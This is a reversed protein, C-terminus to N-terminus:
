LRMAIIDDQTLQGGFLRLVLLADTPTVTGDGTLDAAQPVVLDDRTLQGGFVRLIYLADTPDVSGDGNVDGWLITQTSEVAVTVTRSLTVGRATVEITLAHDGAATAADVVLLGQPTLTIGAPLPNPATVVFTYPGTGEVYYALDFTEGEGHPIPGFTAPIGDVNLPVIEDLITITFTESANGAVNTASITVDFDATLAARSTITFSVVGDANVYNIYPTAPNISVVLSSLTTGTVTVLDELVIYDPDFDGEYLLQDNAGTIVPLTAYVELTFAQTVPTTTVADTVSITFDHEGLATNPAVTILGSTPNVTVGTPAGVLAFVPTIANVVTVPFTGGGIYISANNASTIALAGRGINVNVTVPATNIDAAAVDGATIAVPADATHVQSANNAFQFQVGRGVTTETSSAVRFTYTIVANNFTGFNAFEANASFAWASYARVAAGGTIEQGTAATWPSVWDAAPVDEDSDYVAVTVYAGTAGIPAVVHNQVGILELDQPILLAAVMGAVPTNDSLTFVIDFEDGAVFGTGIGDALVGAAPVITGQLTAEARVTGMSAFGMVGVAMVVALVWAVLRGVFNKHEM